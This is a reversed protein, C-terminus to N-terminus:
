HNRKKISDSIKKGPDIRSARRSQCRPGLLPANGARCAEYNKRSVQVIDDEGYMREANDLADTADEWKGEELSRKVKVLGFKDCADTVYLYEDHQQSHLHMSLVLHKLENM